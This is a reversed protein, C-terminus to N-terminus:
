YFMDQKITKEAYATQLFQAKEHQLFAIEKELEVIKRKLSNVEKKYGEIEHIM